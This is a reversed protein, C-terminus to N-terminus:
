PQLMQALLLGSDWHFGKALGHIEVSVLLIEYKFPEVVLMMAEYM